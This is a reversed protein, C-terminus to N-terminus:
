CIESQGWSKEVLILVVVGARAVMEVLVAVEVKLLQQKALQLVVSVVVEVLVEMAVMTVM